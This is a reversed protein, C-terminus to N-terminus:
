EPSVDVSPLVLAKSVSVMLRRETLKCSEDLVFGDASPWVTVSVAPKASALLAGRLWVMVPLTVKLSPVVTKPIEGTTTNLLEGGNAANSM